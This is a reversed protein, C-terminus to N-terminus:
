RVLRTVKLFAADQSVDGGTTVLLAPLSVVVGTVTSANDVSIIFFGLMNVLHLPFTGSQKDGAYYEEPSFMAVPVIRPSTHFNSGVVATGNWTAAPDTDILAQTGRKTPGTRKGPRTDIVDGVTATIECGTIGEEYTNAPGIEYFDSPALVDHSDGEKLTLVTGYDLALTYGTTTAGNAPTPPIYVDTGPDFTTNPPASLEKWKDPILWPKLCNTANGAAVEATATARAGQVTPGLLRILFTPITNTHGGFRGPLGRMVDVRICANLGDPCVIPVTVDINADGASEGWIANLNAFAHAAVTADATLMGNDALTLAGALAGADAANQAQARAVYFVGQDIVMGAFMLLAVLAIAVHITISGRQSRM